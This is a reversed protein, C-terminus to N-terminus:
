EPAAGDFPARSGQAPSNQAEVERRFEETDSAQDSQGDSTNEEGSRNQGRHNKDRENIEEAFTERSGQIRGGNWDPLHRRRLDPRVVKAVHAGASYNGPSGAKQRRSQGR